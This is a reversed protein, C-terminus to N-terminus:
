EGVLVDVAEGDFVGVFELVAGASGGWVRKERVIILRFVCFLFGVGGRCRTGEYKLGIDPQAIRIFVICFYLFDGVGVVEGCFFDPVDECVSRSM